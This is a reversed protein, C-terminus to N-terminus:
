AFRNTALNHEQKKSVQTRPRPWPRPSFGAIKYWDSLIKSPQAFVVYNHNKPNRQLDDTSGTDKVRHWNYLCKYILACTHSTKLRNYFRFRISNDVNSPAWGIPIIQWSNRVFFKVPKQVKLLDTRANSTEYLNRLFARKRVKKSTRWASFTFPPLSAQHSFAVEREREREWERM